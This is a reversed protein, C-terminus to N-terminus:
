GREETMDVNEQYSGDYLIALIEQILTHSLNDMSSHHNMGDVDVDHRNEDNHNHVVSVQNDGQHFGGEENDYNSNDHHILQLCFDEIQCM